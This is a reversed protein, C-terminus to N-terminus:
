CMPPFARSGITMFGGPDAAVAGNDIAAPIGPVVAAPVVAAQVVAALVVAAAQVLTAQVLAAQVAAVRDGEVQVQLGARRMTTTQLRREQEQGPPRSHARVPLRLQVLRTPVCRVPACPTLVLNAKGPIRGTVFRVVEQAPVIYGPPRRQCALLKHRRGRTLPDPGRAAKSPLPVIVSKM